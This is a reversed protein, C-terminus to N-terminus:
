KKITLEGTFFTLINNNSQIMIAGENSFGHVTGLYSEKRDNTFLVTKNKLQAANMWLESIASAQDYYETYLKKFQDLIENKLSERNWPIATELLLSTAPRGLNKLESFTMNVNIGMGIILSTMKSQEFIGECLIGAIKAQDVLLDNPWKIRLEDLSKQNLSNYIALSALQVYSNVCNASLDDNKIVLSMYINKDPPSSWQRGLRGKGSTQTNTYLVSGHPYNAINRKAEENTSDISDFYFNTYDIM